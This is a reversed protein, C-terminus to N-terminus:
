IAEAKQYSDEYVQEALAKILNNALFRSVPVAVADGMATYADNKNNPLIFNEPVGMLRAAERPTMIRAILSGNKMYIVYQKSSGGKATRLCGAMGDFRVELQQKGQRSRKYGTFVKKGKDLANFLRRYHHRPILQLNRESRAIDIYEDFDIVSDLFVQKAYPKRIKWLVMDDLDKSIERIAQNHLWNPFRSSYEGIEVEKKVAIIFIRPRSQPVWYKADLIIPGVRYGMRSLENHIKIYYAGREAKILGVVNEAILIQPSLSMEKMIRLWEWVM